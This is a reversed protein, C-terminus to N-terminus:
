SVGVSFRVRPAHFRWGCLYSHQEMLFMPVVCKVVLGGSSTANPLQIKSGDFSSMMGKLQRKLEAFCVLSAM